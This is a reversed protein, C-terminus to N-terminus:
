YVLLSSAMGRFFGRRCVVEMVLISGLVGGCGADFGDVNGELRVNTQIQLVYVRIGPM